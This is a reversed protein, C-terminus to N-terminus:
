KNRAEVFLSTFDEVEPAAESPIFVIKEIVFSPTAFTNLKKARIVNNAVRKRVNETESDRMWKDFDLGMDEAMAKLNQEEIPGYHHLFAEHVKLFRGQEGAAYAVRALRESEQGMVPLIQLIVKVDGDQKVATKVKEYVDKCYPCSYDIFMVMSIGADEPGITYQDPAKEIAHRTTHLDFIAYGVIASLIIVSAYIIRLIM